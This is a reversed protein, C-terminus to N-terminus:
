EESSLDNICKEVTSINNTFKNEESLINFKITIQNFYDIADCKVIAVKLYQSADKITTNFKKTPYTMGTDPYLSGTKGDPLTDNLYLLGDISPKSISIGKYVLNTQNNSDNNHKNVKKLIKTNLNNFITSIEDCYKKVYSYIDSSIEKSKPSIWYDNFWEKTDKVAQEICFVYNDNAKEITKCLQDLKNQTLKSM